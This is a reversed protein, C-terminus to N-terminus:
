PHSASILNEPSSDADSMRDCQSSPDGSLASPLLLPSAVAASSSLLSPASLAFSFAEVIM